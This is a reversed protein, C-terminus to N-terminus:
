RHVATLISHDAGAAGAAGWSMCTCAHSGKGGMCQGTFSVSVTALGARVWSTAQLIGIVGSGVLLRTSILLQQVEWLVSLLHCLHLLCLGALCPTLRILGARVRLSGPKGETWRAAVGELKSVAGRSALDQKSGQSLLQLSTGASAQM